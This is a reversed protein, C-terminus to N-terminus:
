RAVVSFHFSCGGESRGVDPDHAAAHDDVAEDHVVFARNPEDRLALLVALVGDLQDAVRDLDACADEVPLLRTRVGLEDLGLELAGCRLEVALEGVLRALDRLEEALADIAHEPSLVALEGLLELLMERVAGGRGHLVAYALEDVLRERARAFVQDPLERGGVPVVREGVELGARDADELGGLLALVLALLRQHALHGLELLLQLRQPELLLLELLDLGLALPAGGLPAGELLVDGLRDVPDRQRLAVDRLRDAVEDSAM